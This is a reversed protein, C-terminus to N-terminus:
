IDQNCISSLCLNDTESIGEEATDLRNIDNFGKKMGSRDEMELVEM